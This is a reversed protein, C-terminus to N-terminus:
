PAPKRTWTRQPPHRQTFARYYLRYPLALYHAVDKLRIPHDDLDRVRCTRTPNVIPRRNQWQEETTAWRCNEPTYDGDNDIRDISHQSSPRCGMDMLFNEFSHLWRDCVRIGRGGYNHYGTASPNLCRYKMACWIGYEPMTLGKRTAGHTTGRSATIERAYCGCSMTNGLTLHSCSVSTIAGCDCQCRWYSRVNPISRDMDRALVTLRGYREGIQIKTRTRGRERALCGCSQSAGSRLHSSWISRVAGCDCRCWWYSHGREPHRNMVVLRGFREGVVLPRRKTSQPIAM